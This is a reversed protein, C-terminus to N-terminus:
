KKRPKRTRNIEDSLQTIKKERDNYIKELSFELIEYADLVDENRIELFHSGANGIWKIAMLQNSIDANTKAFLELRAHLKLEIDGKSTTKLRPVKLENLLAEIAIRIKNACSGLDIWYLGFTENLIKQVNKPCSEPIHIIKPAPYYVVPTIKKQIGQDEESPYNEESMFGSVVVIDNCNNCKMHISFIYDSYYYGGLSNMEKSSLTESKLFDNKQSFDLTGLNCSPCPKKTNWNLWIKRNFTMKRGTYKAFLNIKIGVKDSKNQKLLYLM